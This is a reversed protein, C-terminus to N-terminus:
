SIPQTAGSAKRKNKPSAPRASSADAAVRVPVLQCLQGSRILSGFRGGLSAAALQEATFGNVLQDRVGITRFMPELLRQPRPRQRRESNARDDAGANKHKGSGRSSALVKFHWGNQVRLDEIQDKINQAGAAGSARQHM